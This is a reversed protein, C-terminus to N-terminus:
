GQVRLCRISRQVCLLDVTCMNQISDDLSEEYGGGEQALSKCVFVSFVVERDAYWGGGVCGWMRRGSISIDDWEGRSWVQKGRGM